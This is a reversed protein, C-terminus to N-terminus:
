FARMFIKKFKSSFQSEFDLLRTSYIYGTTKSNKLLEILFSISWFVLLIRSSKLIKNFSSFRGWFMKASMEVLLWVHPIWSCESSISFKCSLDIQFKLGQVQLICYKSYRTMAAPRKKLKVKTHSNFTTPNKSQRLLPAWILDAEFQKVKIIECDSLTNASDLLSLLFSGVLWFVWLWAAEPVAEFWNSGYVSYSIM